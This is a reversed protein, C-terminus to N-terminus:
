YESWTEVWFVYRYIRDKELARWKLKNEMKIVPTKSDNVVVFMKLDFWLKLDAPFFLGTM